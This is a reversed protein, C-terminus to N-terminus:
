GLSWRSTWPKSRSDSLSSFSDQISSQISDSSVKGVGCRASFQFGNERRVGERRERLETGRTVETRLSDSNFDVGQARSGIRSKDEEHNRM